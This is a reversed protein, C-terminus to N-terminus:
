FVVELCGCARGRGEGSCAPPAERATLKTKELGEDRGCLFTVGGGGVTDGRAAGRRAAPGRAAPTEYGGAWHYVRLGDGGQARVTKQM